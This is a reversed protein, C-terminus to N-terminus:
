VRERCSARGIKLQLDSDLCFGDALYDRLEAVLVSPQQEANDRASRGRYSIYLYDQASSVAELFLYRDDERRSRDGLRSPKSQMLDFGLPTVRRPYDSDNMGLLCVAKFPISRMPM